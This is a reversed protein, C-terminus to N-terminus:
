DDSDIEQFRKQRENWDRESEKLIWNLYNNYGYMYHQNNDTNAAEAPKEIITKVDM